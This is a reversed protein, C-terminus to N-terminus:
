PPRRRCPAATGPPPRTSGPPASRTTGRHRPLSRRLACDPRSRACMASSNGAGSCGPAEHHHRHRVAPQEGSSFAARLSRRAKERVRSLSRMRGVAADLFAVDRGAGVGCGQRIEERRDDGAHSQLRAYPAVRRARRAVTSRAIAAREPDARPARSSARRRSGCAAYARSGKRGDIPREQPAPRAQGADRRVRRGHVQLRGQLRPARGPERQDARKRDHADNPGRDRRFDGHRLMRCRGTSARPIARSDAKPTPSSNVWVLRRRPLIERYVFRGWMEEGGTARMGYHFTGGVRLDLTARAMALGKPGWWKELHGVETHAKWVLDLPADFTRTIVFADQLAVHDRLRGMTEKLGEFAGYKEIVFDRAKNSPFRMRMSLRTRGGEDEFTVEVDFKVAETEKDGGHRYVLRSPAVVELFTVINV